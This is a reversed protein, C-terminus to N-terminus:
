KQKNEMMRKIEAAKQKFIRYKAVEPNWGCTNCTAQHECDVNTQYKCSRIPAMNGIRRRQEKDAM